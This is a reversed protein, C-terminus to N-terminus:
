DNLINNLKQLREKKNKLKEIEKKISTNNISTNYTSYEYKVPKDDMKGIFYIQNELEEIQKDIKQINNM